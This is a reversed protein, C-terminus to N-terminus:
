YNVKQVIDKILVGNRVSWQEESNKCPFREIEGKVIILLQRM